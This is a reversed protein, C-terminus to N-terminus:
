CNHLYSTENVQTVQLYTSHAANIVLLNHTILSAFEIAKKFQKNRGFICLNLQKTSNKNLGCHM